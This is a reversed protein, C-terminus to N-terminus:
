KAYEDLLAKDTVGAFAATVDKKFFSINGDIQEIAIQTFIRVPTTLYTHAQELVQPMRKERAILARLRDEAPAFKRKMIVYAARTVGGSYFDPDKAWTRIVTNELIGAEMARVLQERDLQRPPTLPAPDIKALEQKFATLEATEDDIWQTSGCGACLLTLAVLLRRARRPQLLM